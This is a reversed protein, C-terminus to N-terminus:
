RSTRAVFSPYTVTETAIGMGTSMFATRLASTTEHAVWSYHSCPCGARFWNGPSHLSSKGKVKGGHIHVKHTRSTLFTRHIFIPQGPYGTDALVPSTREEAKEGAGSPGNVNM